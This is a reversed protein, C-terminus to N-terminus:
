YTQNVNPQRRTIQGTLFDKVEEVYNEQSENYYPKFAIQEQYAASDLTDDKNGRPFVRMEDELNDCNGV